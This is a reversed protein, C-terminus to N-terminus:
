IDKYFQNINIKNLLHTKFEFSLTYTYTIFLCCDFSMHPPNDSDTPTNTTRNSDVKLYLDLSFIMHPEIQNTAECFRNQLPANHSM